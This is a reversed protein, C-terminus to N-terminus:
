KKTEKVFLVQKINGIVKREEVEWEAKQGIWGNLKFGFMNGMSKQSTKNPYYDLQSGDSIEVFMVLKRVKKSPDDLDTREEYHPQKLITFTKDKLGKVLEGSVAIGELFEDKGNAM